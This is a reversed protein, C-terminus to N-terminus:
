RIVLEAGVPAPLRAAVERDERAATYARVFLGRKRDLNVDGECYAVANWGGAARMAAAGEPSLLVNRDARACADVLRRWEREADDRPNGRALEVFRAPAPWFADHDFIVRAAAVFEPTTLAVRLADFYRAIVPESVSRGFREALLGMERLFAGRDLMM